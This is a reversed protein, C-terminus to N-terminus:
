YEILIIINRFSTTYHPYEGVRSLLLIPGKVVKVTVAETKNQIEVLAWRLDAVVIVNSRQGVKVTVPETKNQIEVLSCRLQLYIIIDNM